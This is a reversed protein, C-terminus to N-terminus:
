FSYVNDSSDKKEEDTLITDNEIETTLTKSFEELLSNIFNAGMSDCTEFKAM